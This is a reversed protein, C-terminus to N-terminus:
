ASKLQFKPHANQPYEQPPSIAKSLPETLKRRQRASRISSRRFSTRTSTPERWRPSDSAHRLM